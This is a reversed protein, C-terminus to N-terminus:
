VVFGRHDLAQALAEVADEAVVACAPGLVRGRAAVEPALALAERLTPADLAELLALGTEIRTAGYRARWGGLVQAAVPAVRTREREDLMRLRALLGDASIGADWARCALDTSFRLLLRDGALGAVRAWAGLADLLEPAAALPHVALGEERLPLAAPGWGTALTRAADPPPDSRGLLYSGWPTLRVARAAEGAAGALDIGGWWHLPGTLLMTAYRGEARAWEERVHTRLPMDSEASALWWPPSGFVSQRGRLFQPNIWWLADLLDDLAYWIGVPLCAIVRVVFRRASAVEAGLTSRRLAPHRTDCRARVGHDVVTLAALEAYSEDEVWRQFGNRLAAPWEEAPLRRLAGLPSTTAPAGDLGRVLRWAMHLLGVPLQTGQAWADLASAPPDGPVAPLPASYGTAREVDHRRSRDRRQSEARDPAIHALLASAVCLPRLQAPRMWVRTAGAASAAHDTFLPPGHPAVTRMPRIPLAFGAARTIEDPVWWDLAADMDRPRAATGPPNASGALGPLSYLLGREALARRASALAGPAGRHREALGALEAATVRGGLLQVARLLAVAAGDVGELEDLIRALRTPESLAATLRTVLDVHQGDPAASATDAKLAEMGELSETGMTQRAINRLREPPVSALVARLSAPPAESPQRATPKQRPAREKTVKGHLSETTPQNDLQGPLTSMTDLAVFASPSRMWLTLLAAVHACAQQPATTAATREATQASRPDGAGCWCGWRFSLRQEAEVVEVWTEPHAADEGVVGSLRGGQRVCRQLLRRSVLDLGNGAAILGCLRVIDAEHLRVLAPSPTQSM